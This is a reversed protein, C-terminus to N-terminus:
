EYSSNTSRHTFIQHGLFSLISSCLTYATTFLNFKWSPNYFHSKFMLFQYFISYKQYWSQFNFRWKWDLKEVECLMTELVYAVLNYIIQHFFNLRLWKLLFHMIYLSNVSFDIWLFFVFFVTDGKMYKSFVRNLASIYVLLVNLWNFLCDLLCKRMYRCCMVFPVSMCCIM